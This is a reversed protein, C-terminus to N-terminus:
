GPKAAPAPLDAQPEPKLPSPEPLALAVAIAAGLTVLLCALLRAIAAQSVPEGPKASDFFVAGIMEYTMAGLAAGLLGVLLGMPGFRPKGLGMAFALGGAAGALGWLLAHMGMSIFLEYETNQYEADIFRPLLVWSVGGGLAAGLITGLLGGTVSGGASRRALGGAVGLGLGLCIGLAGFTLSGNRRWAVATTDLNVVNVVSGMLNQQVKEVPILTRTREGIAFAALGALLGATLLLWRARGFWPWEGPGAHSAV